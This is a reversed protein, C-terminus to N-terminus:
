MFTFARVKIYEGSTIKVVAWPKGATYPIEIVIHNRMRIEEATISLDGSINIIGSSDFRGIGM